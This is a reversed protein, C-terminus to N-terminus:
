YSARKLLNKQVCLAAAFVKQTGDDFTVTIKGESADEVTGEGYRAHSVACGVPFKDLLEEESIAPIEKVLPKKPVYTVKPVVYSEIEGLCGLMFDLNDNTFFVIEHPMYGEATEPNLRKNGHKIFLIARSGVNEFMGIMENIKNKDQISVPESLGQADAKRKLATFDRETAYIVFRSNFLTDVCLMSGRDKFQWTHKVQDDHRDFRKFGKEEIMGCVEDFSYLEAEM